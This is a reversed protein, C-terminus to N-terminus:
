MAMPQWPPRRGPTGPSSAWPVSSATSKRRWAVSSWDRFIEPLTSTMPPPLTATSQARVAARNPASCTRITQRSLRSVM